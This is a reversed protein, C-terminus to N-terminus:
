KKKTMREYLKFLYELREDDSTFPEPRYCEEVALDLAKHAEKLDDPMTEPNYMEGLTMETHNERTLLVEEALETLREKQEKTTKPFPFTNYCLTASYRIREELKGGVARVWVNHIKSTLLAFLWLEADYVAFASDSIVTNKDVFGIPIYERRESSVRPVIIADTPQYRIEGFKHSNNALKNTAERKSSLRENKCATIRTNILPIQKSEFVEDDEIWLCFRYEDRIFEQSGM